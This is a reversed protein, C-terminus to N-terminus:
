EQVTTVESNSIGIREKKVALELLLGTVNEAYPSFIFLSSFGKRAAM